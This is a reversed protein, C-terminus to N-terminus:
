PPKTHGSEWFIARSLIVHYVKAGYGCTILNKFLGHGVKGAEPAAGVVAVTDPSFFHELM